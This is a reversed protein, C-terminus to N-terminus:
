LIVKLIYNLDEKEIRVKYKKSLYNIITDIQSRNKSYLKVSLGEKDYNISLFKVSPNKKYNTLEILAENVASRKKYEATEKKVIANLQINSHPLNYKNELFAKEEQFKSIDNKYSYVNLFNVGSILLLLVGSTYITKNNLWKPYLNLKIKENSLDINDINEMKKKPLDINKPIKVLIGNQFSFTKDDTEFSKLDKLEFQGFYINLVKSLDIDAKKMIDKIYSENYAFCLFKESEINKIYYKYEGDDLVDEFFSDIFKLAEKEKKVPITFIRVWYLEPSLIINLYEGLDFQSDKHLFINKVKNKSFLNM